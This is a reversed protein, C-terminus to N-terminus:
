KVIVYIDDDDYQNSGVGNPGFSGVVIENGLATPATYHSCSLGGGSYATDYDPDFFYKNGWPDLPIEKVYPGCWNSFKNSDVAILGADSTTLDWTERDGPVTRDLGDPWKGTDWALQQIAPALIGLEIEAQSIEASNRINTIHPIAIMTLLGILTVVIMIEVLTFGTLSLDKVPHVRARPTVGTLTNQERIKNKCKKM